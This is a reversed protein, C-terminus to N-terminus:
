ISALVIAVLFGVVWSGVVLPVALLPTWAIPQRTRAKFGMWFMVALLSAAIGTWALLQAWILYEEGRGDRDYTVSEYLSVFSAAFWALGLAIVSGSMVRLPEASRRRLNRIM